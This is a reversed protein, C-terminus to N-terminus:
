RAEMRCSLMTIDDRYSNKGKFKDLTALLGTHIEKLDKDLNDELYKQIRESGFEEEKSNETESIGDTYLFLTFDELDTIFGENIFPLPHFTGLVTCGEDLTQVGNKSDILFPPNHGANIYVLTNITHDYIGGFFTIFNEGKANELIQFNLIEIIQSLNRSTRLLTRLSAQFNSMMIAAPIGKGSVDAICILFQNENIPIYDYYDGGVSQHPLYSAEVKLRVGYPLNEPFLLKQVDTAIQLERRFAEERLQRQALRKNEIAVIILNSVAQLFTTNISGEEATEIASVFVYALNSSKHKVPIALSFEDFPPELDGDSIEEIQQCSELLETTTFDTDTGFNVRCSWEDELVYLALKGINLNARITFEYIRFLDPEPLNDNIAQTIELLSNVEMEKLYYKKQLSQVDTDM